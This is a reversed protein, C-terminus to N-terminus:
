LPYNIFGRLFFLAASFPSAVGFLAKPFGVECHPSEVFDSFGRPVLLVLSFTREALLYAKTGVFEGLLTAVM